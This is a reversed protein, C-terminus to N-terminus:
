LTRQFIVFNCPEVLCGAHRGNELDFNGNRIIKYGMREYWSKLVIKSKQQWIKPFLLESQMYEGGSRRSFDEAFEVLTQGIGQGQFELRCVLIGFEFTNEDVRRIRVSGVIQAGLRAAFIEEKSILEATESPILRPTGAKWMGAEAIEYVANIMDTIDQVLAPNDAKDAPVKEIIITSTMLKDQM